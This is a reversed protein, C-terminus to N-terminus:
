VREVKMGSLERCESGRLLASISSLTPNSLQSVEMGRIMCRSRAKLYPTWGMFSEYSGTIWSLAGGGALSKSSPTGMGSLSKYSASLAYSYISSLVASPNLVLESSPDWECPGTGIWYFSSSFFALSILLGSASRGGSFFFPKYGSPPPPSPPSAGREPFLFLPSSGSSNSSSSSSSINWSLVSFSFFFIAIISLFNSSSVPLPPSRYISLATISEGYDGLSTSVSPLSSM